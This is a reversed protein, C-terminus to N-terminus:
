EYKSSKLEVYQKLKEMSELYKLRLNHFEDDEIEKWSSYGSFCYDFGEEKMRYKVRDFDNEKEMKSFLCKIKLGRRYGLSLTRFHPLPM